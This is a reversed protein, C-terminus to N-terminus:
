PNIAARANNAPTFYPLDEAQHIPPSRFETSGM